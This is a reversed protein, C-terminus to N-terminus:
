QLSCPSTAVLLGAMRKYYNTFESRVTPAPGAAILRHQGGGFEKWKCEVITGPAFEWEEGTPMPGEVRYVAGQLPTVEVPRWADAGENLLPMYITAM